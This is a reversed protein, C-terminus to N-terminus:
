RYLAILYVQGKLKLHNGTSFVNTFPSHLLLSEMISDLEKSKQVRLRVKLGIEEDRLNCTNSFCPLFGLPM